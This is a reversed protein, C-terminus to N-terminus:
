KTSPHLATENIWGLSSRRNLDDATINAVAKLVERITKFEGIFHYDSIADPNDRYDFAYSTCGKDDVVKIVWYTGAGRKLDERKFIRAVRYDNEDVVFKLPSM